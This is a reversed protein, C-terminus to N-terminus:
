ATVRRVADLMFAVASAHDAGREIARDYEKLADELNAPEAEAAYKGRRIAAVITEYVPFGCRAAVVSLADKLTNNM